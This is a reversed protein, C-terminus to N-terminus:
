VSLVRLRQFRGLALLVPKSKCTIARAENKVCGCDTSSADRLSAIVILPTFVFIFGFTLGTIAIAIAFALDM